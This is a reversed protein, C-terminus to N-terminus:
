VREKLKDCVKRNIDYVTGWITAPEWGPEFTLPDCNLDGIETMAEEYFATLLIELKNGLRFGKGVGKEYQEDIDMEYPFKPWKPCVIGAAAYDESRLSYYAGCECNADVVTMNSDFQNPTVEWLLPKGCADCPMTELKGEYTGGWEDDVDSAEYNVVPNSIDKVYNM